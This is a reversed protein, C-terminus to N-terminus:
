IGKEFCGPHLLDHPVATHECYKRKGSSGFSTDLEKWTDVEVLHISTQCHFSLSWWTASSGTCCAPEIIVDVTLLIRPHSTDDHDLTDLAPSTRAFLIDCKHILILLRRPLLLRSLLNWSFSINVWPRTPQSLKWGRKDGLCGDDQITPYFM